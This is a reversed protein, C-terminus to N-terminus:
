WLPAVPGETFSPTPNGRFIGLYPKVSPDYVISVRGPSGNRGSSGDSGNNGSSGSSGPPSGSGGSGGNGGRGGRGGRGGPGGSSTITLSGGNPDILYYRVKKGDTTASAQLMPSPGPRLTIRVSVDPGDGGDGGDSGATGDTGNGGNGGPSPNDPDSSGTSGSAGDSGNQGDLGNSGGTGSYSAKFPYNYRLPIDLSAHLTPHSPVTLDVHGTKGESMRPDHALTLVGKKYTVVSSTVAVDSWLIKGKGAGETTWIKGTSDPFTAILGSKEGPAIGPDGALTVQMSTVPIKAIYVKAHFLVQIHNCGAAPFTALVLFLPAFRRTRMCLGEIAVRQM